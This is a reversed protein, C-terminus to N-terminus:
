ALTVPRGQGCVVDLFSKVVKPMRAGETAHFGVETMERFGSFGLVKVGPM